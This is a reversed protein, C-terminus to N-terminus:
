GQEKGSTFPGQRSSCPNIKMQTGSNSSEVSHGGHTGQCHRPKPLDTVTVRLPFCLQAKSPLREPSQQATQTSGMHSHPRSEGRATGDGAAQGASIDRPGENVQARTRARPQARSSNWQQPLAQCMWARTRRRPNGKQAQFWVPRHAGLIVVSPKKTNSLLEKGRRSKGRGRAM